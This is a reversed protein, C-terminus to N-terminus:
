HSSKIMKDYKDRQYNNDSNGIFFYNMISFLITIFEFILSAIIKTQYLELPNKDINENMEEQEDNYDNIL